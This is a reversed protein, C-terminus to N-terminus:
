RNILKHIKRAFKYKKLKNKLKRKTFNLFREEEYQKIKNSMKKNYDQLKKEKKVLLILEKEKEILSSNHIKLENYNNTSSKLNDLLQNDYLIIEELLGHYFENKSLYKNLLIKHLNNLFDQYYNLTYHVYFPGWPHEEFSSYNNNNLDIYSVNFKDIVYQDLKDWYYNMKAVDIKQVRGSTSLTEMRNNILYTEVNRAKHIIVKCNPVNKSLFEFFDDAAKEWLEFYQATDIEIKLQNLNGNKKMEKYYDSKWLMWRNNTIYQNEGLKLCGFHIDAFFDIILFDPQEIKLETLFEKTLDTKINWRSYDDIDGIKEEPYHTPLSAISILSAQNQTLICDYYNKYENNFKSNFNDRTACSGMVAVRKREM